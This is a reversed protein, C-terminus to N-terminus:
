TVEGEGKHKGEDLVKALYAVGKEQSAEDM